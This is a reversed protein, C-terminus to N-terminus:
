SPDGPNTLKELEIRRLVGAPEFGSAPSDFEGADRSALPPREPVADLGFRLVLESLRQRDSESTWTPQSAAERTFRPLDSAIQPPAPSIAGTTVISASVRPAQDASLPAVAPERVIVTREVPRPSPRLALILSECGLAIVLAMALSPWGRGGRREFRASIAGAEFMLKDRDVRSSAPALAKLASEIYRLEPDSPIQPM